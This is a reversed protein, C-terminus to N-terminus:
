SAVAWLSDMMQFLSDGSAPRGDKLLSAAAHLAQWHADIGQAISAVINPAALFGLTDAEADDSATWLAAALCDALAEPARREARADARMLLAEAIPGAAAVMSRIGAPKNDLDAVLTANGTADLCASVVPISLKRCAWVHGAEHFAALRLRQTTM